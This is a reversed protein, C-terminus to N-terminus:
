WLQCHVHSIRFKMANGSSFESRLTVRHESHQLSDGSGSGSSRPRIVITKNDELQIKRKRKSGETKEAVPDWPQVDLVVEIDDAEEKSPLDLDIMGRKPIDETNDGNSFVLCSIPVSITRCSVQQPPTPTLRQDRRAHEEPLVTPTSPLHTGSSSSSSTGTPSSESEVVRSVPVVLGLRRQGTRSRSRTAM